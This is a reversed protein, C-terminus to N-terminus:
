YTKSETDEPYDYSDNKTEERKRKGVYMYPCKSKMFDDFTMGHDYSFPSQRYLWLADFVQKVDTLRYWTPSGHLGPAGDRVITILGLDVSNKLFNRITLVNVNTVASMRHEAFAFPLGDRGLCYAFLLLKPYSESRGIRIASRVVGWRSMYWKVCDSALEPAHLPKRCRNAATKFSDELSAKEELSRQGYEVANKLFRLGNEKGIRGSAAAMGFRWAWERWERFPATKGPMWPLALAKEDM